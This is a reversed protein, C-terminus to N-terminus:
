EKNTSYKDTDYCHRRLVSLDLFRKHSALQELQSGTGPFCHRPFIAKSVSSVELLDRSWPPLHSDGWNVMIEGGTLRLQHRDTLRQGAM